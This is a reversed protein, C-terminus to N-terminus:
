ASEQCRRHLFGLKWSENILEWIKTVTFDAPMNWLIAHYHPRKTNKGYEGCALYRINDALKYYRCRERLRKFFLQLHRKDVGQLPLNEDNFTLTIFFPHSTSFQSECVCRTKWERIISNRCLICKGCPVLRYIPFTEGTSEDIVFCDDYNEETVCRKWRSYNKWEFTDAINDACHYIKGFYSYCKYKLLNKRFDSHFILLPHECNINAM